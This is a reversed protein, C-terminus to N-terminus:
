QVEVEAPSIVLRGAGQPLSPLNVQTVRWGRHRLLGQFPPLGSVNGILRILAPDFGSQVTVSQDEEAAIIPELKLYRELVQRCSEHISRVAAGLQADPYPLVNETLFDILRGDRQMLSLVQVARESFETEPPVEGAPTAAQGPLTDRAPLQATSTVLEQAIDPPIQGDSVISVLCRFAYSIRKGFGIM